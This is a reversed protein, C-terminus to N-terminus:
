KRSEVYIMGAGLLVIGVVAYGAINEISDEADKLVKRTDPFLSPIEPQMTIDNSKAATASQANISNVIAIEADSLPLKQGAKQEAEWHAKQAEVGAGIASVLNMTSDKRVLHQDWVKIANQGLYAAAAVGVIIAVAAPWGLGVTTWGGPRWSPTLVIPANADANLTGDLGKVPAIPQNGDVTRVEPYFVTHVKGSESERMLIGAVVNWARLTSIAFEYRDPDPSSDNREYDSRERPTVVFKEATSSGPLDKVEVGTESLLDWMSSSGVLLARLQAVPATPDPDTWDGSRCRALAMNLAKEFGDTSSHEWAFRTPDAGVIIRPDRRPLERHVRSGGLRRSLEM